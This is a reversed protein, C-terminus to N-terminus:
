KKIKRIHKQHLIIQVPWVWVGLLALWADNKSPAQKTKENIRYYYIHYLSVFLGILYWISIYLM